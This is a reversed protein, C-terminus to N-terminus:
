YGIVWVMSGISDVGVLASTNDIIRGASLNDALISGDCIVSVHLSLCVSPFAIPFSVTRFGKTGDLVKFWQLILGGPLKQYGNESKLSDFASMMVLEGVVAGNLNFLPKGASSILQSNSNRVLSWSTNNLKSITFTEHQFIQGSIRTAGEGYFADSGACRITVTNASNDTRM